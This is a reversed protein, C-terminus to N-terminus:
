HLSSCNVVQKWSICFVKIFLEQDKAMEDYIQVATKEHRPDLVGLYGQSPIIICNM